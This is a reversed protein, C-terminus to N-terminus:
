QKTGAPETTVPYMTRFEACEDLYRKIAAHHDGAADALFKDEWSGSSLGHRLRLWDLFAGYGPNPAGCLFLHTSIGDVFSAFRRTDDYGIFVLVSNTRSEYERIYMLADITSVHTNKWHDPAKVASM